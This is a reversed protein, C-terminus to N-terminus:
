AHQLEHAAAQPARAPHQLTLRHLTLRTAAAAGAAVAPQAARPRACRLMDCTWAEAQAGQLQALQQWTIIRWKSCSSCQVWHLRTHREAHSRLRGLLSYFAPSGMFEARRMCCCGLM